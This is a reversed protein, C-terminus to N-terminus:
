PRDLHFWRFACAHSATNAISQRRLRHQQFGKRHLRARALARGWLGRRGAFPRRGSHAPTLAGHHARLVLDDDERLLVSVHSVRFAHQIVPLGEVTTRGISCRTTQRAIANIAELQRARQQELSYLRANQLAISAQTSFLTLCISPKLILTTSTIAKAISVGVVEDRGM